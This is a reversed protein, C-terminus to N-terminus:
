GDAAYEDADEDERTNTYEFGLTHDSFSGLLSSGLLFM